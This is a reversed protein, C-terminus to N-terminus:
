ACSRIDMVCMRTNEDDFPYVKRMEELTDLFGKVTSGERM